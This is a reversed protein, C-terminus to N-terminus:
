VRKRAWGKRGRVEPYFLFSLPVSCVSIARATKNIEKQYTFLPKNQLVNKVIFFRLPVHLLECSTYSEAKEGISRVCWLGRERERRFLSPNRITCAFCAGSALVLMEGKKSEKNRSTTQM